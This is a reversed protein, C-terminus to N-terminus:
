RVRGDHAPSAAAEAERRLRERFRWWSWAIAIVVYGVAVVVARVLDGGTLWAVLLLVAGLVLHFLASDRYPRKPM